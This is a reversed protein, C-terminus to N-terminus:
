TGNRFADDTSQKSKEPSSTRPNQEFKLKRNFHTINSNYSLADKHVSKKNRCLQLLFHIRSTKKKQRQKATASSCLYVTQAAFHNGCCFHLFNANQHLEM